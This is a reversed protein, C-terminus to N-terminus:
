FRVNSHAVDNGITVQATREGREPHWFNVTYTGETVNDFTYNGESDPKTILPTDVVLIFASMSSHIDCFVKVLGPKDFTVRKAKGKGGLGM